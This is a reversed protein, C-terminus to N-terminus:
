LMVGAVAAIGALPPLPETLTVTVLPHAHVALLLSPQIVIV